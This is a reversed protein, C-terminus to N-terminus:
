YTAPKTNLADEVTIPEVDCVDNANIVGHPLWGMEQAVLLPLYRQFYFDNVKKIMWKCYNDDRTYREIRTARPTWVLFECLPLDLLMMGFQVQSRYYVPLNADGKKKGSYFSQKFPCKYEALFSSSGSSVIGDASYSLWPFEGSIILGPFAITSLPDRTQCAIVHVYEAVPEHWTGYRTAENGRFSGWLKERLLGDPRTFPNEGTINSVVSGSIRGKRAEFWAPSRQAHAQVAQIEDATLWLKNVFQLQMDRTITERKTKVHRSIVTGAFPNDDRGAISLLMHPPPPAPAPPQISASVAVAPPMSAPVPQISAHALVFPHPQSVAPSVCIRKNSNGSANTERPNDSIPELCFPNAPRPASSVRVWKVPEMNERAAAIEASYTSLKDAISSNLFEICEVPLKVPPINVRKSKAPVLSLKTYSVRKM